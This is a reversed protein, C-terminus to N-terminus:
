GASQEGKQRDRELLAAAEEPDRPQIWLVGERARIHEAFRQHDVMEYVNHEVQVIDGPQFDPQQFHLYHFVETFLEQVKQPDDHHPSDDARYTLEPLGFHQLGRMTYWVYGEFDFALFGAWFLLPPSSRCVDIMEPTMIRSLLGAPHASWAPENVVSALNPGDFLLAALYLAIYREIPDAPGDVYYLLAYANHVAMRDKEAFTWNSTRICREIILDPLRSPLVAVEMRHGNIELRAAFTCYTTTQPEQQIVFSQALQQVRSLREPQMIDDATVYKHMLLSLLPTDSEYLNAKEKLLRKFIEM